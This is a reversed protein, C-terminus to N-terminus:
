DDFLDFVDDCKFVIGLVVVVIVIALVIWFNM